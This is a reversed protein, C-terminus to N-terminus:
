GPFGHPLKEVTPHGTWGEGKGECGGSETLGKNERERSEHSRYKLVNSNYKAM